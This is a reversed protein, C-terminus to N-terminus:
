KVKKRTLPNNKEKEYEENAMQKMLEYNIKEAPYTRPLTDLFTIGDNRTQVHYAGIRQTIGGAEGVAVKSKRIYDLLSTKGHDVHGMITVVPARPLAEAQTKRDSLLQDEIENEKRLIVKHGMEEAVLQATAQDLVQNISVMEGLKMLTKIVETAKVAMKAALEAVTVTEGIEVDRSVPAAPKIFGHQQQNLKAAGKAGKGGKMRRDRGNSNSQENEEFRKSNRRDAGKERHRGRNEEEREQRAEAERVYRSTTQDEDEDQHARAEEEAAWRAENEEALRRAEEALRKSEEEQKKKQQEEQARRLEATAKDEEKDKHNAAEKAKAQAQAKAAEKAKAEKEAKERAAELAKQEAEAKKKAELAKQEEEAKAKAIAEQELQAEREKRDVIVKKKRVEVQVQKSSGSSQLTMTGSTKKKLSMRKPAGEQLNEETM